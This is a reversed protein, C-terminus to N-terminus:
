TAAVAGGTVRGLVADFADRQIVAGFHICRVVCILEHRLTDMLANDHVAARGCLRAIEFWAQVPTM